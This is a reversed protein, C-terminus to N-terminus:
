DMETDSLSASRSRKAKPEEEEKKKKLADERKREEDLLYDVVKAHWSSSYRARELNGKSWFELVDLHSPPPRTSDARVYAVFNELLENAYGENMALDVCSRLHQEHTDMLCEHQRQSGHDIKCGNCRYKLVRPLYDEVLEASAKLLAKKLIPNM